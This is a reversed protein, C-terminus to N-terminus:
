EEKLQRASWFSTEVYCISSRWLVFAWRTFTAERDDMWNVYITEDPLFHYPGNLKKDMRSLSAIICLSEATRAPYFFLRRTDIKSNCAHAKCLKEQRQGVSTVASQPLKMNSDSDSGTGTLTRTASQSVKLRFFAQSSIM